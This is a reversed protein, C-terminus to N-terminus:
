PQRVAPRVVEGERPAPAQLWQGLRVLLKGLSAVLRQWSARRTSLRTINPTILVRRVVLRQRLAERQQEVARVLEWTVFFM